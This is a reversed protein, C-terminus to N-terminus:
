ENESEIDRRIVIEKNIDEVNENKELVDRLSKISEIKKVEVEM